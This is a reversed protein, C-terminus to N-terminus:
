EPEDAGSETRPYDDEDLDVVQHQEVVDAEPAEPLLGESRTPLEDGSPEADAEAVPARQEAADEQPVDSEAM